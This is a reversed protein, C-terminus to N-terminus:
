DLKLVFRQMPQRPPRCPEVSGDQHFIYPAWAKDVGRRIFGVKELVRASAQNDPKVVGRFEQVLGGRRAKTVFESLVAPMIGQGRYRPDLFYGVEWRGAKRPDDSEPGAGFYGILRRGKKIVYFQDLGMSERNSDQALRCWGTVAERGFSKEHFLAFPKRVGSDSLIAFIRNRDPLRMPRLTVDKLAEPKQKKM